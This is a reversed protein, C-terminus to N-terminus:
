FNYWVIFGNVFFYLLFSVVIVFTGLVKEECQICDYSNKKLIYIFIFVKTYIVDNSVLCAGCLPGSHGTFCTSEYGGRKFNLIFLKCANKKGCQAIMYGIM